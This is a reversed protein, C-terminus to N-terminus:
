RPRRTTDIGGGEEPPTTNSSISLTSSPKLSLASSGSDACRMTSVM